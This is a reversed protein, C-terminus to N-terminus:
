RCCELKVVCKINVTLWSSLLEGDTATAPFMTVRDPAASRIDVRHVLDSRSDSTQETGIPENSAATGNNNEAM